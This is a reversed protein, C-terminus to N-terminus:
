HFLYHWKGFTTAFFLYDSQYSYIKHLHACLFDFLWVSLLLIKQAFSCVLLWRGSSLHLKYCFFSPPCPFEFRLPLSLQSSLPLIKNVNECSKKNPPPTFVRVVGCKTDFNLSVCNLLDTSFFLLDTNWSASGYDSIKVSWKIRLGNQALEPDTAVYFSLSIFM